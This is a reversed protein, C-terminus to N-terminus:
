EQPPPRFRALTPMGYVRRIHDVADQGMGALQALEVAREGDAKAIWSWYYSGIFGGLGLMGVLLSGPASGVLGFIFGFLAFCCLMFRIWAVAVSKMSVPIEVGRWRSGDQEVVLWSGTPVLPLFNIHFFKTAVHFMGPVADVKGFLRTGFVIL